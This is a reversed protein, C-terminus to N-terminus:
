GALAVLRSACAVAIGISGALFLYEGLKAVKPNAALGCMLAGVVVMLIPVLAVLM